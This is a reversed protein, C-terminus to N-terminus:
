SQRFFQVTQEIVLYNILQITENLGFKRCLEEVSGTQQIAGLFSYHHYDVSEISINEGRLKILWYSIESSAATLTGFSIGKDEETQHAKWIDPVSYSSIFIGVNSTLTITTQEDIEDLSVECKNRGQEAHASESLELDNKYILSGFCSVEFLTQLLWEFCIFDKLYPFSNLQPCKEVWLYLDSGLDDLSSSDWRKNRLFGLCFQTFNTPGLLQRTVPYTMELAHIHIAQISGGIVKMRGVSRNRGSLFSALEGAYEAQWQYLDM